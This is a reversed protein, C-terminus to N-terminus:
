QKQPIESILTLANKSIKSWDVLGVVKANAKWINSWDRAIYIDTVKMTNDIHNLAEHVTYKDINLLSSRAITAWSHRAMYHTLNNPKEVGEVNALAQLCVKLGQNIASSFSQSDAYYKSFVFLRDSNSHDLWREVIPRVQPEIRISMEARDARRSATKVREYTIINGKLASKKLALIDASNIGALGFSLMFLDRAMNARNLASAYVKKSTNDPLNAIAQIIDLEIARSKTRPAPKVKYKNFPSLPILIIGRDEDNFENKARNHLARLCALYSSVARGGEKTRDSQHLKGKRDTKYAPENAIFKEFEELFRVTIHRIDLSEAGVFRCLANLAVYYTKGTGRQMTSAVKRGYEIFDLALTERKESERIFRVVEAVTIDEATGLQSALNRWKRIIGDCMDNVREDKIKGSRTIQSADVYINTAVKLSQRRHTVRIKVNTTGDQRKASPVVAKFTPM